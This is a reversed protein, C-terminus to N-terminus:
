RKKKDDSEVTVIQNDLREKTDTVIGERVGGMIRINDAHLNSNFQYRITQHVELDDMDAKKQGEFIDTRKNVILNVDFKGQRIVLVAMDRKLDRVINKIFGTKADKPAESTTEDHPADEEQGVMFHGHMKMVKMKPQESSSLSSSSDYSSSTGGSGSSSSSMPPSSSSVSSEFSEHSQSSSSSLSQSSDSSQSSSEDVDRDQDRLETTFNLEPAAAQVVPEEDDQEDDEYDSSEEEELLEEQLDDEETLPVPMKDPEQGQDKMVIYLLSHAYFFGM